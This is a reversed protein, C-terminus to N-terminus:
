LLSFYVSKGSYVNVNPVHIIIDTLNKQRLNFTIHTQHQNHKGSCRQEAPDHLHHIIRVLQAGSDSLQDEEAAVM